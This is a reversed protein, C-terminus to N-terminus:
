MGGKIRLALREPRVLVTVIGEVRHWPIFAYMERELCLILGADTFEIPPLITSTPRCFADVSEQTTRSEGDADLWAVTMTPM